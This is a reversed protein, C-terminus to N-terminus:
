NRYLCFGRGKKQNMCVSILVFAVLLVYMRRIWNGTMFCSRRTYRRPCDYLSPSLPSIACFLLPNNYLSLVILHHPCSRLCYSRFRHRIPPSTVRKFAFNIFTRHSWNPPQYTHLSPIPSICQHISLDLDDAPKLLLYGTPLLSDSLCRGNTSLLIEGM